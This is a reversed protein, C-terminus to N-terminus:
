EGSKMVVCGKGEYCICSETEKDWEGSGPATPIRGTSSPGVMFKQKTNAVIHTSFGVFCSLSRWVRQHILGKSACWGIDVSAAFVALGAWLHGAGSRQSFAAAHGHKCDKPKVEESAVAVTFLGLSFGQPAFIPHFIWTSVWCFFPYLHHNLPPWYGDVLM